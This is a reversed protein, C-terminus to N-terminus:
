KEDVILVDNIAEILDNGGNYSGSEDENMTNTNM